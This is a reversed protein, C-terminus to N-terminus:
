KIEISAGLVIFNTHDYGLTGQRDCLEEIALDVDAVISDVTVDKLDIVVTNAFGVVNINKMVLTMDAKALSNAIPDDELVRFYKVEVPESNWNEDDLNSLANVFNMCKEYLIQPTDVLDNHISVNCNQKIGRVKRSSTLICGM